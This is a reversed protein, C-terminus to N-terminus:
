MHVRQFTRDGDVISCLSTRPYMYDVMHVSTVTRQEKYTRFNFEFKKYTYLNARRFFSQPSDLDMDLHM